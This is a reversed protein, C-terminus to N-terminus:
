PCTEDLKVVGFDITTKDTFPAGAAPKQNCVKWDRDLVQFRWGDKVDHSKLLPWFPVDLIHEIDEQADQLVAGVENPMAYSTTKPAAPASQTEVAADDAPAADVVPASPTPTATETVTVVAAPTPTSDAATESGCATLALASAAALIGIAQIRRNL